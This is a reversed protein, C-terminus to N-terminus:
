ETPEAECRGSNCVLNVPPCYIECVPGTYDACQNEYLEQYLNAYDLNIPIGCECTSCDVYATICDEAKQCAQHDPDIKIIQHDTGDRATENEFYNQSCGSFILYGFLLLLILRTRGTKFQDM